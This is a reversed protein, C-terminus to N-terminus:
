ARLFSARAGRRCVDAVLVWVGKVRLRRDEVHVLVIRCTWAEALTDVLQVGSSAWVLRATVAVPDRARTFRRPIPLANTPQEWLDRDTDWAPEM